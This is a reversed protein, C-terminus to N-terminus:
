FDKTLKHRLYIKELATRCAAALKSEAEDKQEATEALANKLAEIGERAEYKGLIYAAVARVEAGESKRSLAYLSLKIARGRAPEDYTLGLDGVTALIRKRLYDPQQPYKEILPEVADPGLAVLAETSAMGVEPSLDSLGYEILHHVARKDALQGLSTAAAARISTSPDRILDFLPALGREDKMLGLAMAAQLRIEKDEAAAAKEVAAFADTGGIKGLAYLAYKRVSKKEHGLAKVLELVAPSGIKVLAHVAATALYQDKSELKLILPRVARAGGIEGLRMAAQLADGNDRDLLGILCDIDNEDCPLSGAHVAAASLLAVFAAIVAALISPKMM